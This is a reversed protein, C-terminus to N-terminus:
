SLIIYHICLSVSWMSLNFSLSTRDVLFKLQLIWSTCTFLLGSFLRASDLVHYFPRIWVSGSLYERLLLSFIFSVSRSADSPSAPSLVGCYQSVISSISLPHSPFSPPLPWQVTLKLFPYQNRLSHIGTEIQAPSYLFSDSASDNHVRCSRFPQKM